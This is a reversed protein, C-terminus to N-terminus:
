KRSASFRKHLRSLAEANPQDLYSLVAWTLRLPEGGPELHFSQRFTPAASLYGYGKNMVFFPTPYRPNGPHDFIAVGSLRGGELAGYYTCWAAAEGNAKEITATGNANLVRGLTMSPLFRLGLGNYVHGAASLTVPVKAARFESSWELWIGEKLPAPARLTRREVMLVQDQSIWHQIATVEVPEKERLSEFRQHVIKGHPAPNVEGWFDVGNVGSWAVMLGRLHVHDPPGDVCVPRGGPLYLPHVYSKPTGRSYRYEFLPQERYFAAVKEGKTDALRMRKRTAAALVPTASLFGRRTLEFM